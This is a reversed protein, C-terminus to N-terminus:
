EKNNYKTVFKDVEFFMKEVDNLDEQGFNWWQIKILNRITDDDFRKRIIRIPSGVAIAYPEIDKSVVAGAGIIAGDGITVGDLITVNAGIFVDNGIIIPKREKIKNTQSLTEGNQKMTSYFFPSTSIGNTPHVGWGCLLNPGISCFKGITTFSIYSNQAIYTYNGITTNNIHYPTYLKVPEGIKNNISQKSIFQVDATNLLQAKNRININNDAYLLDSLDPISTLVIKKILRKIFNTKQTIPINFNKLADIAEQNYELDRKKVNINTALKHNNFINTSGCHEGTNDFGINQVMSLKPYLCYGRNLVVTAHWKIFWTHLKGSINDLLQQEFGHITNINFTDMLKKEQLKKYLVEANTELLNWASKWTGWGWCSAAQYFFTEPLKNKALPYMYGSIHMVLPENEYLDLADNMYKIFGPSTVIDDELVIIKGYKNITETVGDIISKALGENNEKEIIQIKKFGIITKLYIRIEEINKKDESNKPGDSYIILTSLEALTNKQLAEVTKQTHSLRNYVFLVIPALIM